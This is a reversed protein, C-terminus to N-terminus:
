RPLIMVAKIRKCHHRFLYDIFDGLILHPRGAGRNVVRCEMIHTDSAWRLNLAGRRGDAISHIKAWGHQRGRKRKKQIKFKDESLKRDNVISDRLSKGKTCVVQLLTQM